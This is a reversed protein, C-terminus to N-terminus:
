NVEPKQEVERELSKLHDLGDDFRVKSMVRADASSRSPFGCTELDFRVCLATIAEIAPAVRPQIQNSIAGGHASANRIQAATKALLDADKKELPPDIGVGLGTFRKVLSPRRLGGLLGNIRDRDIGAKGEESVAHAADVMKSLVGDPLPSNAALASLSDVASGIEVLDNPDVRRNMREIVRDVRVRFRRRDNEAVLWRAMCDSLAQRDKWFNLALHRPSLKNPGDAEVPHQDINPLYLNATPAKVDLSGCVAIAELPLPSMAMQAYFRKWEWVRDLASEIDVPHDFAISAVPYTTANVSVVSGHTFRGGQWVQYVRDEVRFDILVPFDHVVYIERPAFPGDDDGSKYRLSRLAEVQDPTAGFGRLSETFDYYFFNHLGKLQFQVIQVTGDSTLGRVDDVVINPYISAVHADASGESWYHSGSSTTLAHHLLLDRGDSGRLRVDFWGAEDSREFHLHSGSTVDLQSRGGELRLVGSAGEHDLLRVPYREFKREIQEFADM